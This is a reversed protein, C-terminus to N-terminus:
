GKEDDFVVKVIKFVKRIEGPKKDSLYNLLNIIL